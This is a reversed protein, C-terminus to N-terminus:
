VKKSKIDDEILKELIRQYEEYIDVIINMEKHDSPITVPEDQAAILLGMRILFNGTKSREEHKVKLKDMTIEAAKIVLTIHKDLYPDGTSKTDHKLEEYLNVHEPIDLPKM